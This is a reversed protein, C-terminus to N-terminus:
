NEKWLVHSDDDSVHMCPTDECVLKANSEMDVENPLLDLLVNGKFAQRITEPNSPSRGENSNIGKWFRIFTTHVIDPVILSVGSLPDEDNSGFKSNQQAEMEEKLCLRMAELNGTTEEWLIIANKKGLRIEKPRLLLMVKSDGSGKPWGDRKTSNEVVEACFKKIAEAHENNDPAPDFLTRFAAVTIHLDAFPYIHAEPEDTCGNSDADFGSTSVFCSSVKGVLGQYASELSTPFSRWAAVLPLGFTGNLKGREYYGEGLDKPYVGTLYPDEVFSDQISPM